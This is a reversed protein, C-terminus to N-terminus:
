ENYIVHLLVEGVVQLPARDIAELNDNITHWHEFFANNKSDPDQHIIDIMPINAYKNVYLHDDNVYTGQQQPFYNEYGLSRARDYVKRVIHPAYYLSFGEMPFVADPAGVMDLLIGYAARYNFQHPNKAWYQSGLGWFEGADENQTDEPPGYDELDFFIIDIGAEPLQPQIIRAIELLVGVGSAGDNAGDIPTRHFEPNADHDAYPRSDWHAALLIRKKKEPAYSGIINIGSLIEHNYARASFEQETVTAGFSKLKEALYKATLQQASSGPVRPGFAVQEAVYRYASDANFQPVMIRGTTNEQRTTPEQKPHNNTCSALLLLIFAPFLIKKM